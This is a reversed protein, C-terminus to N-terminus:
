PAAEEGAPAPAPAPIPEERPAVNPDEVEKEPVAQKHKPLYYVDLPSLHWRRGAPSLASIIDKAEGLGDGGRSQKCVLPRPAGKPTGIWILVESRPGSVQGMSGIDRGYKLETYMNGRRFWVGTDARTDDKRDNFFFASKMEPGGRAPPYVEAPAAGPTGARYQLYSAAGDNTGCLSVLKNGARLECNFYITEGAKCQSPSPAASAAGCAALLAGLLYASNKM